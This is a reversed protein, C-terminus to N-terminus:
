APLYKESRTNAAVRKKGTTKGRAKQVRDMMAYLKRAGAETSGNGLESVIRAPIVFEGDALRAPQKNGITAPISDSVGDGPGRLLRGGDSYSGLNYQSAAGGRALAGLGGLAMRRPLLGGRAAGSGPTGDSGPANGTDGGGGASGVGDDGFGTDTGMSEVPANNSATNNGAADFGDGGGDYINSLNTIGKAKAAARLRARAEVLPIGLTAALQAESIRNQTVFDFLGADDKGDKFPTIGKIVESPTLGVMREGKSNYSLPRYNPNEVYRKTAADFIYKQTPRGEAAPIGTTVESYPRMIQEVGSKTPYAGKGMLYEYAALSDGTQRNFRTNFEEMTTPAKNVYGTSGGGATYVDKLQGIGTFGGAPRGPINPATTVTGNPNITTVGAGSVGVPLATDPAVAIDTPESVVTTTNQVASPPIALPNLQSASMWDLNTKAGTSQLFDNYADKAEAVTTVGSMDKYWSQNRDADTVERGLVNRVWEDANTGTDASTYGTFPTTAQEFSTDFKGLETGAQAATLFDNYVKTPDNSSQIMDSWYNLGSQEADRNLVNRYMNQVLTNAQEQTVDVPETGQGRAETVATKFIDVENPDITDGFQQTWYQLGEPDSGRGAYTKYLDEISGPTGGEALAVIGGRAMGKYESAPYNGASTYTQGYPDFTYNRIMGTDPRKTTTQVGEDANIASIAALGAGINNKAFNGFAAPSDTVAKFGTALKDYPTASALREGIARQAIEDAAPSLADTVGAEALAANAAESSLAGTGANALSGALGAGGYAGLGAMLGRSLSGTALASIGGVALGTGAAAGLGFMGGVATGVGPAFFNLAAGAIMPLMKKLFNAEPLGTEPNITLTGGGKLALVQLSQVEEPTMHVLMSDPGRGKAAMHGALAHLSM